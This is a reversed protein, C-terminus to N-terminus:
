ALLHKYSFQIQLVFVWGELDEKDRIVGRRMWVIKTKSLWIDLNRIQEVDDARLWEVMSYDYCELPMVNV